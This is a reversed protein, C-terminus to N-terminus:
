PMSVRLLVEFLIYTILVFGASIIVLKKWERISLMFMIAILLLFTAIKYDIINWSFIYAILLIIIMFFRTISQKIEEEDEEANKMIFLQNLVFLINMVFIVWIILKPFFAPGVDMNASVEPLQNVFYFGILCFLLISGNFIILEIKPVKM